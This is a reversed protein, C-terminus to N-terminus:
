RRRASIRLRLTGSVGGGFEATAGAAIVNDVSGPIRGLGAPVGRFRAHTFAASADLTLWGAPRWFGTAEIGYRRTADNPETSGADGVFM